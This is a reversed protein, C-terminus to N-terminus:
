IAQADPAVLYKRGAPTTWEFIGPRLQSLTWGALQKVQHHFRCLGGLNCCCTRGGQDYPITHDQDGRWAPQRCTM